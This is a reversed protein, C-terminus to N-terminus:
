CLAKEWARLLAAAVGAQSAHALEIAAGSPLSIVISITRDAIGPENAYRLYFLNLSSRFVGITTPTRPAVVDEGVIPVDAAVDPGADPAPPTPPDDDDSSGLVGGCAVLM